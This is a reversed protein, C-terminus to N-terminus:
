GLAGKHQDGKCLKGALGTHGAFIAANHLQQCGYRVVAHM